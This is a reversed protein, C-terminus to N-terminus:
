LEILGGLEETPEEMHDRSRPAEFLFESWPPRFTGDVLLHRGTHVVTRGADSWVGIGRISSPDYVSSGKRLRLMDNAALDWRVGVVRGDKDEKPYNDQWWHMDALTILNSQNLANCRIAHELGTEECAFILHDSDYGRLM